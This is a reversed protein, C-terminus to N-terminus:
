IEGLNMNTNNAFRRKTRELTMKGVPNGALTRHSNMEEEHKSCERGM